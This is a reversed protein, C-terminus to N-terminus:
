KTAENLCRSHYKERIMDKEAKSLYIEIDVPLRSSSPSKLELDNVLVYDYKLLDRLESCDVSSLVERLKNTFDLFIKVEKESVSAGCVLCVLDPMLSNFGCKPCAVPLIPTRTKSWAVGFKHKLLGLLDSRGLKGAWNYIKPALELVADGINAVIFELQDATLCESVQALRAAIVPFVRESNRVLRKAIDEASKYSSVSGYIDILIDKLVEVWTERSLGLYDIGSRSVVEDINREIWSELDIERKSLFKKSPKKQEEGAPKKSEGLLETPESEEATKRSKRPM